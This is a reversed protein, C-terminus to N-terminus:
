DQLVLHQVELVVEIRAGDVTQLALQARHLFVHGPQHPLHFLGDGLGLLENALHLTESRQPGRRVRAPQEGRPYGDSM